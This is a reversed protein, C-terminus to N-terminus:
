GPRTASGNALSREAADLVAVLHRGYSVDLDHPRAAAIAALWEDVASFFAERLNDTPLALESRGAPGWIEVSAEETGPPATLTVTFTSLARDHHAAAVHVVDRPGRTASLTEIAPLLQDVVSLAHPGLDWLGGRSRRWVSNAYPSGASDITGAWTVSAGEWPGFEVALRRADAVWDRFRRQFLLTMFSLSIVGSAIVAEAVEDAAPLDLALPKDLLLHKGARAARVATSAQVEPSVAFSVAEVEDLLRGLDDYGVGEGAIAATRRARDLNRGWFGVLEIDDRAALVTGHCWIAWYGTGVVGVRLRQGVRGPGTTPAGSM